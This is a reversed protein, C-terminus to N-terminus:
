LVEMILRGVLTRPIIVPKKTIAQVQRKMEMSFGLCDLVVLDVDREKLESAAQLLQGDEQYPSAYATIIANPIYAQWRRIIEEEQDQEPVIVGLVQNPKMVGRVMNRLVSNPEFLPVKSELPPFEGTCLLFIAGVSEQLGAIKEAVYHVLREEGLRVSQGDRLRSVLVTEGALPALAEIEAGSLDDLAGREVIEFAGQWIHALDPTIDVRPSQGITVLGIRQM